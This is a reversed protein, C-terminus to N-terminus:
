WTGDARVRPTAAGTLLAQMAEDLNAGVYWIGVHDVIFVRQGEDIALVATHGAGEEGIPFLRTGIHVSADGLTDALPVSMETNLTFGEVRQAAAPASQLVGYVTGYPALLEPLFPLVPLQHRLGPTLATHVLSDTILQKVFSLDGTEKPPLPPAMLDPPPNGPVGLSLLVARVTHCSFGPQPDDPDSGETFARLRVSATGLLSRVQDLPPIDSGFFAFLAKSLAILEAHREAGRNRNGPAISSFAQWVLPHHAPTADDTHGVATFATGNVTLEAAVHPLRFPQGNLYRVLEAELLAARRQRESLPIAPARFSSVEPESRPVYMERAVIDPVGPIMTIDGTERDIIYTQGSGPPLDQRHQPPYPAWVVWGKDFENLHPECEYGRQFSETVAWRRVIGNLQEQSIM